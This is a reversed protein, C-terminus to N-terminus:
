TRRVLRLSFDGEVVEFDELVDPDLFFGTDDDNQAVIEKDDFGDLDVIGDHDTDWQNFRDIIEDRNDSYGLDKYGVFGILNDMSDEEL